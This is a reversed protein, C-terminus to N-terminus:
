KAELPALGNFIDGFPNVELPKWTPKEGKRLTVSILHTQVPAGTSLQTYYVDEKASAHVIMSPGLIRHDGEVSVNFLDHFKGTSVDVTFVEADDWVGILQDTSPAYQVNVIFDACEYPIPKLMEGKEMDVVVWACSDGNLIASIFYRHHVADYANCSEDIGVVNKPLVVYHGLTGNIRDIIDVAFGGGSADAPFIGFLIGGHIDEAYQYDAFGFTTM